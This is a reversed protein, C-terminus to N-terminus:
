AQIRHIPPATYQVRSDTGTCRDSRHKAVDPDSHALVYGACSSALNNFERLGRDRDWLSLLAGYVSKASVYGIVAEEFGVNLVYRMADHPSKNRSVKEHLAELGKLKHPYKAETYTEFFQSLDVRGPVRSVEKAGLLERLEDPLLGPEGPRVVRREGCPPLVIGGGLCRIEGFPLTPNGLTFGRPLRYWYHGRNPSESPRTNVYVAKALLSRLHRPTALPKDVDIVVCRAGSPTLVEGPSTALAKFEGFQKRWAWLQAKNTTAYQYPVLNWCSKGKGRTPDFPVLPIGCRAYELAAQWVDLGAVDPFHM